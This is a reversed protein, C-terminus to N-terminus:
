QNKDQATDHGPSPTFSSAICGPVPDKQKGLYPETIHPESASTFSCDDFHCPMVTLRHKGAIELFRDFRDLFGQRDHKWVLFQMITRLSNFGIDAAWKLERDIIKSDFAESQWMETFNVAYGPIYNFGLTWPQAEYWQRAKEAPWRWSKLARLDEKKLPM